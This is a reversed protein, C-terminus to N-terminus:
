LAQKKGAQGHVSSLSKARRPKVLTKPNVVSAVLSKLSNPILFIVALLHRFINPDNMGRLQVILNREDETVEFANLTVMNQLKDVRKELETIRKIENEAAEKYPKQNFPLKTNNGLLGDGMLESVTIGFAQALKELTTKKPFTINAEIRSLSPQTIGVLKALSPQSMKKDARLQVIRDGLKVMGPLWRM